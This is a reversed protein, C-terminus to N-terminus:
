KRSIRLFQTETLLQEKTDKDSIYSNFHNNAYGTMSSPLNWKFEEGKLTVKIRKDTASAESGSDTTSDSSSSSKKQGSDNNSNNQSM